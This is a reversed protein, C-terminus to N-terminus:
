EGWQQKNTKGHTSADYVDKASPMTEPLNIPSAATPGQDREATQAGADPPAPQNAAWAPLEQSIATPSVVTHKDDNTKNSM